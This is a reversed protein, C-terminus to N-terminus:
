IKNIILNYVEIYEKVFEKWSHDTLMGINRIKNLGVKDEYIVTNSKSDFLL